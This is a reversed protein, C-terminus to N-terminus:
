IRARKPVEECKQSTGETKKNAPDHGEAFEIYLAKSNMVRVLKM